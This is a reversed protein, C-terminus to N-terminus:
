CERCTAEQRTTVIQAAQSGTGSLRGQRTCERYILRAYFWAPTFIGPRFNLRETTM